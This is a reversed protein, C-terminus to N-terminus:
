EVALVGLLPSRAQLGLDSRRGLLQWRKSQGLLDEYEYEISYRRTRTRTSSVRLVLVFVLSFM